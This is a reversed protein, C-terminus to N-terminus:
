NVKILRAAYNYLQEKDSETLGNFVRGRQENYYAIRAMEPRAFGLTFEQKSQDVNIVTLADMMKGTARLNVVGGNYEDPYAVKKWVDYGHILAWLNKNEKKVYEAQKNKVLNALANRQKATMGGIPRFFVKSSYSKFPNGQADIGSSTRERILEAAFLGINTLQQSTLNLSIM